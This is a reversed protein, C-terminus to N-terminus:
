WAQFSHWDKSKRKRFDEDFDDVGEASVDLRVAEEDLIQPYFLEERGTKDLNDNARM